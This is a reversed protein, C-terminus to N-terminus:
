RPWDRFLRELRGYAPGLIGGLMAAALMFYLQNHVPDARGIASVFILYLDSLSLGVLAAVPGALKPPRDIPQLHRWIAWPIFTFAMTSILVIVFNAVTCRSACLEAHFAGDYILLGFVGAGALVVTVGYALFTSAYLGM